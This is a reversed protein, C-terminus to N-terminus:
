VIATFLTAYADFRTSKILIALRNFLCEHSLDTTPTQVDIGNSRYLNLFSNSLNFM